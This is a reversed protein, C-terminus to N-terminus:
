CGPSSRPGPEGLVVIPISVAFVLAPAISAVMYNRFARAELRQRLLGARQAHWFMLAEILSAFGLTIAYLVIVIAEADGYSGVLATPFPMFAIAALYVLNLKMFRVDIASLKSFFRHHALWYFGIVLFSLFFGFIENGKHGLTEVLKSDRVHINGIGVVLLTMAIAFVADSFFAVRDFELEESRRRYRPNPDSDPAAAADLEEPMLRRSTPTGSRGPCRTMVGAAIEQARDAGLALMRDVEAPDAALEAYREQLPRLVRRSRGGGRIKFTGYGSGDVFQEEVTASARRDRRAHIEILNSCAPSEDRDHRVENDSDTVATKIKKTIAKADDLVRITGQPSEDSKSMKHTPHQLDMVRAGFPPITAEPVILTDGFQHNFRIAVDRTLEVHQRQDDGM